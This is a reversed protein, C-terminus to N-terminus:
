RVALLASFLASGGLVLTQVTFAIWARVRFAPVATLVAVPRDNM